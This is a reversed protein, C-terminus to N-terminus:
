YTVRFPRRNPDTPIESVKCEIVRALAPGHRLWDIMARVHNEPGQLVCEVTRSSANRVYGRLGPYHAAQRLTSYRFGVGTVVGSVLVRYAAEEM